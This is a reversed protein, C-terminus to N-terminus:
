ECPPKGCPVDRGCCPSSSGCRTAPTNRAYDTAYFGSGKFIFGGGTGLLRRVSGGCEPCTSVPEDTMSQFLEFRHGCSECEYEYTPM